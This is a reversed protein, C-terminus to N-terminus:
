SFAKAPIPQREDYEILGSVIMRRLAYRVDRPMSWGIGTDALRQFLLITEEDTTEGACWRRYLNDVDRPIANSRRM